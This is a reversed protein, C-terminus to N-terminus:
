QAIKDILSHLPSLKKSWSHYNLVYRYGAESVKEAECRNNSLQLVRDRFEEADKCVLIDYGVKAALGQYGEESSIVPLKMAMYELIKNQVGAALRVSCIGALAEKCAINVNDVAGIINVNSLNSFKKADNVKIRGIVHFTYERDVQLLLPMVEKAFWLAADMNQSSYMNGIFVLKKSNSCFIPRFSDVSVGNSAIHVNNKGKPFLYKKDYDSVLFTGSFKDVIKTEYKYLRSQEIKYIISRLDFTKNVTKYRSYNLSIADTMELIKPCNISEVYNAMRILHCIILDYNSYIDNLKHQFKSYQYYKTQIPQPTFLAFLSNIYSKWKPLYITHVKNYVGDDIYSDAENAYETLSLLDVQHEQSLSKCLEHIRLRDGGVVPYPFRPTLVLIKM